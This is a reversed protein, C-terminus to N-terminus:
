PLIRTCRLGQKRVQLLSSVLSSSSSDETGLVAVIPSTVNVQICDSNSSFLSRTKAQNQPLMDNLFNNTGIKHAWRVALVPTDCYDWVEIGLKIGPLINVDQNIQSITFSIAEIYGLGFSYFEGCSDISAQLHFPLLVGITINGPEQFTKQATAVGCMILFLSFISDVIKM